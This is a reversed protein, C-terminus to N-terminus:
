LSGYEDDFEAESDMPVITGESMESSSSEISIDNNRYNEYDNLTINCEDSYSSM